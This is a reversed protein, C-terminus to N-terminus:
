PTKEERLAPLNGLPEGLVGELRATTSAYDAHTRASSTRVELLVREADLLDLAGVTGAAYGAEASSLSQEAQITLVDDFLRLQQWTLDLRQELDGLSQDLGAVAGRRRQVAALRREAAERVGAALAARHIPLNIAASLGVIDQGNDEPPSARGAADTRRGVVTYGLGLTVDPDYAKGALQEEAGAGAVAAEAAALTPDNAMATARLVAPDLRFRAARPLTPRPLPAGAPQGRLANLSAQVDARRRAIDLLKGDDRTIEAQIRIVAQENGAGTSYRSRAVDEYRGLAGRDTRVIAAWSDLFAAENWLQRAQTVVALRRAEVLHRQGAAALLAAQERLHLKGFWPFRQSLTVALRQPGVRTQPPVLYAMVAATPDPLSRVQPAVEAAARANAALAAVDPNHQLVDQLFLRLDAAHAASAVAEAPRATAEPAPAPGPSAAAPLALAAVALVAGACLLAARAPGAPLPHKERSYRTIM